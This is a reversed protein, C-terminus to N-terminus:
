GQCHPDGCLRLAQYLKNKHTKRDFFYLVSAIIVCVAESVAGHLQLNEESVLLLNRKVDNAYAVVGGKFIESSGPVSTVAAAVGGGTSSEAVSLTLGRKRLADNVSQALSYLEEDM